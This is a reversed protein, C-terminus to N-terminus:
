ARDALVVTIFRDSVTVVAVAVRDTAQQTKHMTEMHVKEVVLDVLTTERAVTIATEQEVVARDSLATVLLRRFIQIL